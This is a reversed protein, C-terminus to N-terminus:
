RISASGCARIFHTRRLSASSLCSPSTTAAALLSRCCAQTGRRAGHAATGSSFRRWSWSLCCLRADAGLVSDHGHLHVRAARRLRYLHGSSHGRGARYDWKPTSTLISVANTIATMEAAIFIGMVFIIVVAISIFPVTGFRHRVYETVSHGNPMLARIRPGVFMFMVPIGAMGLAYGILSVVGFNAGTEGPSMLVWTGFMSAVLTAIGINTPAHNRSVTYEEVSQRRRGIRAIGLVLFAVGVVILTALGVTTSLM